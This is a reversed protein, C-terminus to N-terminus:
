DVINAHLKGPSFLHFSMKKLLVDLLFNIALSLPFSQCVSNILFHLFSIGQLHNLFHFFTPFVSFWVPFYIRRCVNNFLLPFGVMRAKWSSISLRFSLPLRQRNIWVNPHLNSFHSATIKLLSEGLFNRKMRLNINM